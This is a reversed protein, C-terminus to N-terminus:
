SRPKSIFRITAPRTLAKAADEPTKGELHSLDIAEELEAKSPQYDSRVIDIPRQKMTPIQHSKSQKGTKPKTM